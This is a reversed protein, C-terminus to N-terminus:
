KLPQINKQHYKNWKRQKESPEKGKTETCAQGFIMLSAAIIITLQKMKYKAKKMRM